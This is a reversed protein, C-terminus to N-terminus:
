GSVDINGYLYVLSIQVSSDSRPLIKGPTVSSWGSKVWSILAPMDGLLNAIKSQMDEPISGSDQNEMPHGTSDGYHDAVCIITPQPLDGKNGIKQYDKFYYQRIIAAYIATQQDVDLTVIIVSDSVNTTLPKWTTITMNGCSVSVVIVVLLAVAMISNPYRSPNRKTINLANM